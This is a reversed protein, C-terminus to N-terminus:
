VPRRRECVLMGVVWDPGRDDRPGGLSRAEDATGGEVGSGGMRQLPVGQPHGPALDGVAVVGGSPVDTGLGGSGNATLRGQAQRLSGCLRCCGLRGLLGKRIGAGPGLREHHAPGFDQSSGASPPGRRVVGGLVWAVGATRGDEARRGYPGTESRGRGRLAKCGSWATEFKRPVRGRVTVAQGVWRASRGAQEREMCAMREILEHVDADQVRSAMAWRIEAPIPSWVSVPVARASDRSLM